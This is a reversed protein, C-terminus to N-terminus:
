PQVPAADTLNIKINASKRTDDLYARFMEEGTLQRLQQAYRSRKEQDQPDGDKIADIRALLYGKQNAEVGVYYPLKEPNAKVINNVL